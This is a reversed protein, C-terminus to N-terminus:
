MWIGRPVTRWGEVTVGPAVSRLMALEGSVREDACRPAAAPLWVVVEKLGAGAAVRRAADVLGARDTDTGGVLLLVVLRDHQPEACWAILAGSRRAGVWPPRPRALAAAYYRERELHWGLQPVTPWVVFPEAPLAGDLARGLEAEQVWGDVLAGPDGPAAPLVRERVPRAVFGSRQYLAAGVESFLLLAHTEPAGGLEAVLAAMMASAHGRGRLEPATFVSAVGQSTGPRGDAFSRMTYSECSAVVQGGREYLWTRMAARSFPLARLRAERAVFQEVSLHRGWAAHCLRDRAEKEAESALRLGMADM